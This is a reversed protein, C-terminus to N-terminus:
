FHNNRLEIEPFSSCKIIVRYHYDHWRIGGTPFYPPPPESPTFHSCPPPLLKTQASAGAIRDFLTLEWGGSMHWQPGVLSASCKFAASQTLGLAAAAAAAPKLTLRLCVSCYDCCFRLPQFLFRSEAWFIARRARKENGGGASSSNNSTVNTVAPRDITPAWQTAILWIRGMWERQM